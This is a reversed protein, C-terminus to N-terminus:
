ATPGLVVGSEGTMPDYDALYRLLRTVDKGNIEGDGTADAGLSVEIESEGTTPNYDALYRLLRTVDKGNVAGDGNCDGYIYDMVTVTGGTIGVAVDQERENCCETCTVTVAYNGASTGDKVKFTLTALVGTATADEAVSWIYSKGQTLSNVITGNTVSVLELADADYVLGLKLYTFGVNKDLVIDVTVTEGAAAKADSVHLEVGYEVILVDGCNACVNNQYDHGTAPIVEDYWADCEWCVYRDYGDETCTPSVYDDIYYDHKGTAPVIEYYVDECNQCEYIEYGDTCSPDKWGMWLYDHGTAPTTMTYSDGCATCTYMKYGDKVCTADEIMESYTHERCIGDPYCVLLEGGWCDGTKLDISVLELIDGTKVTMAAIKDMWNFGFENPGDYASHVVIAVCGNEFSIDMGDITGTGVIADRLVLYTGDEQLQAWIVIAWKANCAEFAEQTTCITADEGTILGNIDDIRFRYGYANDAAASYYGDNETIDIDLYRKEGCIWCERMWRGSEISYPDNELYWDSFEHWTQPLQQYYTDGCQTCEFMGLGWSQCSANESWVLAYDHDAYDYKYDELILGCDNCILVARDQVVCTQEEYLWQQSSHFCLTNYVELESIFMWHHRANFKVMVYRANSYAELTVPVLPQDLTDVPEVIGLVDYHVGDTSVSFEVTAPAYIGASSGEGVTAVWLTYRTLDYVDGLDVIIWSYGNEQHDPSKANFGCWVEDQYFWYDRTPYIAGDTLSSGYEDPYLPDAYDDWEWGTNESAQYLPSTEYTAGLALNGLFYIDGCNTCVNSVYNHGMPSLKETWRIGCQYCEFTKLGQETCTPQLNVTEFYSSHTCEAEGAVSTFRSGYQFSAQYASTIARDLFGSGTFEVMWPTGNNLGAYFIVHSGLSGGTWGIVDGPQLGSYDGNKARLVADNIDIGYKGYDAVSIPLYGNGYTQYLICNGYSPTFDPSRFGCDNLVRSVFGSCDFSTQGNLTFGTRWYISEEWPEYHSWYTAGVSAWKRAEAIIDEGTMNYNNQIQRRGNSPTTSASTISFDVSYLCVTETHESKNKEDTAYYSTCNAYIAYNYTGVALKNFECQFDVSSNLLSYQNTSISETGGTKADEGSYVWVSVGTLRNYTSKIDGGISFTKGQTVQNPANVNSITVDSTNHSVYKMKSSPVYAVSGDNTQIQYWYNGARNLVLAVATLREGKSIDRLYESSADTATSCPLSMSSTGATAEITCHSPLTEKIVANTPYWDDYYMDRPQYVHCIYRGRGSLQSANFEAWTRTVLQVIGNGDGNGELYTIGNVDYALLVMSHGDDGYYAGNSYPTSRIYAGIKVGANAFMDYSVNNVGPTIRNESYWVAAGDGVWAGFLKNYVANAYAWCQWGHATTGIASSYMSYMHSNDLRSGLPFYVENTCATDYYLDIDGAFVGDLLQALKPSSTYDSGSVNNPNTVFNAAEVETEVNPVVGCLMVFALLFSLLKTTMKM